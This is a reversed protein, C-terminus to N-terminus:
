AIHSKMVIPLDIYEMRLWFLIGHLGYNYYHYVDILISNYVRTTTHTFVIFITIVIILLLKHNLKLKIWFFYSHLYEHYLFLM